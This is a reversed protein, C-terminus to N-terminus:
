RSWPPKQDDKTPTEETGETSAEASPELCPERPAFSDVQEKEYMLRDRDRFEKLQGTDVMVRVQDPTKGLRKAAGALTYFMKAM